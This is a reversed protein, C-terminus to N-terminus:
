ICEAVLKGLRELGITIKEPTASSFNLRMTNQGMTTPDIYFYQGPIFAVKIESTARKLMAPVDPTGPLEGWVFLGGEPNTHKFSAPFFKDLGNLMADLREAYMPTISKLHPALLGKRLFADAIAQTLNSTHTDSSQKAVTMKKIIEDNAVVAGVRLGPSLIKSFSNLLIIHGSEDFAKIPPIATGRYRLDGYPDDEMVVLDYKAALEAIKKRREVGLTKGTPNQFTPIVYFLKPNYQKIKAELDEIVVGEDDTEVPVCKAQYTAFAQLTGLFTPSEVLVVDGPDLFIKSVLDLGQTSGTLTLVNKAEAKVGKPGAIYELFSERLPAYGETTGYQLINAGNQKLVEHAIEEVTDLPFSEKAPNGGGFSIIEPDGMLKLIERIVSGSVGDMRKAFKSM